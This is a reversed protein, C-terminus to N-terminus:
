ENTETNNEQSEDTKEEGVTGEVQEQEAKEADKMAQREEPDVHVTSIAAISDKPRLNILKVGQAVRGMVRLPAVEM